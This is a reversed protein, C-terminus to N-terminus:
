CWSVGQVQVLCISGGQEASEMWIGKCDLTRPDNENNVSAGRGRGRGRGRGSIGYETRVKITQM